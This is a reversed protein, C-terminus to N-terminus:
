PIPRGNVITQRPNLNDDVLVIDAVQGPAIEGRDTIGLSRLQNYGAAKVAQELPWGTIRVLRRFCDCYLAISGAVNSVVAKPDYPVDALRACGDAVRVRLGGLTYIGDPCAAARIADTIVMVRDPGKMRAILEIMPDSLHVGDTIIEVLVDDALLGGTVMTPRLHHIPMMANCFHTLHTMGAARARQFTDYDAASHGGSVVIGAEVLERICAEAGELEPALSVKKVPCIANLRKVFAADPKRLYDPNQAGAMEANFFPGELHVGLCTAGEGKQRYRVACRCLEALEEEPLTLGTALFSTVGDATKGKGITEFAEETADCFDFGGRGHSHIDVFGPLLTLGDADIVKDSPAPAADDGVAANVGNVIRIPTVGLDRGPTVVRAGKITTNMSTMAITFALY